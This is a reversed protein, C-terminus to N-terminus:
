LLGRCIENMVQIREKLELPSQRHTSAAKAFREAVGLHLKGARNYYHAATKSAGTERADRAKELMKVAIADVRTGYESLNFDTKM